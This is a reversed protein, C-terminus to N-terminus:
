SKPSTTCTFIRQQQGLPRKGTDIRNRHEVDLSYDFVQALAVDAHQDSVMIDAFSESNAASGIYQTIAAEDSRARWFFYELIVMNLYARYTEEPVEEPEITGTSLNINLVKGNLAENLM